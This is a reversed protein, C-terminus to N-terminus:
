IFMCNSHLGCNNVDSCHTKRQQAIPLHSEGNRLNKVAFAKTNRDVKILSIGMISGYMWYMGILDQQEYLQQM